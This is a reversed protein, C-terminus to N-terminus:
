NGTKLYEIKDAITGKTRHRRVVFSVRDGRIPQYETTKTASCFFYERYEYQSIRCRIWGEGPKESWSVVKGIKPKPASKM